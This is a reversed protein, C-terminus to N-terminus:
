QNFNNLVERYREYNHEKSKLSSLFEEEYDSQIKQCIKLFCPDDCFQSFARSSFSKCCKLVQSARKFEQSSEQKDEVLKLNLLAQMFIHIKYKMVVEESFLEVCMEHVDQSIQTNQAKALKSFFLTPYRARFINIYFRRIGRLVAKMTIDKRAPYKGTKSSFLSPDLTQRLKLSSEGLFCQLRRKPNKRLSYSNKSLPKESQSSGVDELTQMKLMKLNIEDQSSLEVTGNKEDFKIFENQNINFDWQPFEHGYEFNLSQLHDM